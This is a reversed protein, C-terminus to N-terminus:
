GEEVEKVAKEQQQKELELDAAIRALNAARAVTERKIRRMEEIAEIALRDREILEEIVEIESAILDFTGTVNEGLGLCHIVESKLDHLGRIQDIFPRVHGMHVSAEGGITFASPPGRYGHDEIKKCDVCTVTQFISGEVVAAEGMQGCFAIGIM